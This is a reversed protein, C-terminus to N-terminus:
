RAEYSLASGGEFSQQLPPSSTGFNRTDAPRSMNHKERRLDRHADTAAKLENDPAEELTILSNDAEPSARLIEDLKRQTAEQARAQTHQIVFVMALTTAAALTQFATELRAPFGFAASYLVWAVDATVVGLALTPKAAWRDLAHLVRSGRHRRETKESSEHRM